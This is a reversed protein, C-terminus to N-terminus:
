SVKELLMRSLAKATSPSEKEISNILLALVLVAAWRDYIEPNTILINM